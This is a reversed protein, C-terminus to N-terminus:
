TWHSLLRCLTCPCTLMSCATLLFHLVNPSAPFSESATLQSCLQWGRPTDLGCSRWLPSDPCYGHPVKLARDSLVGGASCQLLTGAPMRLFWFGWDWIVSHCKRSNFGLLGRAGHCVGLVGANLFSLYFSQLDSLLWVQLAQLAPDDTWFPIASSTALPNFTQRLIKLARLEITLIVFM